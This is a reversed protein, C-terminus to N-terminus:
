LSMTDLGGGIADDNGLCKVMRFTGQRHLFQFVRDERKVLRADETHQCEELLAVQYMGDLTAVAAYPVLKAHAMVLLEVIVLVDMEVALVAMAGDTQM